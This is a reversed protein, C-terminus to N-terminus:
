QTLACVPWLMEGGSSAPVLMEGLCKSVMGYFGTEGVVGVDGPFVFLNKIKVVKLPHM